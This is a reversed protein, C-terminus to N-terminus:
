VQGGLHNEDSSNLQNKTEELKTTEAGDYKKGWLLMYLGMVVVVGGIISGAYLNEGLAFYSFIATFFTALPDFITVFVPGRAKTCWLQFYYVMGSVVVAGYLISWFDINFGITWAAQKHQVIVTFVGSQVGGVLNMWTTLSLQAPYRKLTYSQMIYWMAWSICSGVTLIPGKLWNEELKTATNMHFPAHGFKKLSHGKYLTITMVGALSVVTGLIKAMGRLSRVNVSEMRLILAIIFTLTAITNVMCSVFTPNTYKMSKFFMNLTLSVGLISLVFIEWFLVWTLKPRSRREIFYAFPLLILASLLHRYTVYVFPDMGHNFSAKATIYSFTYGIQCLVMLLVPKYCSMGASEKREVKM